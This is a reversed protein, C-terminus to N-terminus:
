VFRLATKRRLSYGIVGFGLIMMAWSAPEPVAATIGESTLFVGSASTFTVGDPLRMTVSATNYFNGSHEGSGGGFLTANLRLPTRSGRYGFVAKINIKDEAEILTTSFDLWGSALVDMNGGGPGPYSTKSVRFSPVAEDYYSTQQYSGDDAPQQAHVMLTNSALGALGESFYGHLTFDFEIPTITDENALPKYYYLTDQWGSSARSYTYQDASFSNGLKGSALDAYSRGASTINQDLFSSYVSFDISSTSRVPVSINKSGDSRVGGTFIGGAETYAFTGSEQAQATGAFGLLVVGTLFTSLKM